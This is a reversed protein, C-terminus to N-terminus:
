CSLLNAHKGLDLNTLLRGERQFQRRAAQVFHHMHIADAGEDAALLAATRATGVIGAGTLDLKALAGLNVDAGVPAEM